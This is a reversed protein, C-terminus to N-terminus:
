LWLWFCCLDLRGKMDAADKGAGGAHRVVELNAM